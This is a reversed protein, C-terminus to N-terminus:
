EWKLACDLLEACCILVYLWSVIGLVFLLCSCITVFLHEESCITGNWSEVATSFETSQVFREQSPKVAYLHVSVLLLLGGRLDRGQGRLISKVRCTVSFCAGCLICETYCYKRM